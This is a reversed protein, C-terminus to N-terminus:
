LRNYDDEIRIIDDEGFYEGTQVEIFVLNENSTNQIRHKTNLPIKISDGYSVTNEVDDLTVIGAGKVIIWIESRKTHYQYSIRQKPYIIIRKLKYSSTEELIIYEGWPRITKKTRM